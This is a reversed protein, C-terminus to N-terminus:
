KEDNKIKNCYKMEPTDIGYLRVEFERKTLYDEVIVGDGDVFKKIKLLINRTM